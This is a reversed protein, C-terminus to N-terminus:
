LGVFDSSKGCVSMETEKKRGTRPVLEDHNHAWLNWNLITNPKPYAHKTYEM